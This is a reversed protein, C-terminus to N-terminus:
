LLSMHHDQRLVSQYFFNIKFYIYIYAVLKCQDIDKTAVWMIYKYLALNVNGHCFTQTKEVYKITEM